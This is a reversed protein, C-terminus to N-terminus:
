GNDDNLKKVPNLVKEETFMTNVVQVYGHYSYPSMGTQFASGIVNKLITMAGTVVLKQKYENKFRISFNFVKKILDVFM